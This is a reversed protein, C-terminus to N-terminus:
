DMLALISRRALSRFRVDRRVEAEGDGAIELFRKAMGIADAKLSAQV